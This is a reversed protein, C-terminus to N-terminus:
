LKRSTKLRITEGNVYPLVYSNKCVRCTTRLALSVLLSRRTKAPFNSAPQLRVSWTYHYCSTDRIPRPQAGDPSDHVPSSREHCLLGNSRASGRVGSPVDVLSPRVSVSAASAVFIM